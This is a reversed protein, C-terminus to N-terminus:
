LEHDTDTQPSIEIYVRKSRQMLDFLRKMIGYKQNLYHNAKNAEDGAPLLRAIAPIYTVGEAVKGRVDCPAIEVYSNNRIRKIKGANVLTMVYLKDDHQAFWVPTPVANGNKRFTKLSIFRAGKLSEFASMM